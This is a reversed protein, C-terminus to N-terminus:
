DITRRHPTRPQGSPRRTGSANLHWDSGPAAPRENRAAAFQGRRRPLTARYEKQAKLQDYLAGVRGYMLVV